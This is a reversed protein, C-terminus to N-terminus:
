VPDEYLAGAELLVKTLSALERIHATMVEVNNRQKDLSEQNVTFAAFRYTPENVGVSPAWNRSRIKAATM